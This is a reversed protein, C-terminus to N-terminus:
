KMLNRITLPLKNKNRNYNLVEKKVKSEKRIDDKYYIFTVVWAGRLTEVRTYKTELLTIIDYIYRDEENAYENLENM